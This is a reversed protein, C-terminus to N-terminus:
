PLVAATESRPTLPAGLPCAYSEGNILAYAQLSRSGSIGNAFGFFGAQGRAGEPLPSPFPIGFSDNRAVGVITGASSEAILVKKIPQNARIDWAWGRIRWGRQPQGAIPQVSSLAGACDNPPALRFVSNLSQGVAQYFSDSYVWAKDQRLFWLADSFDQPYKLAGPVYEAISVDEAQTVIALTANNMALRRRALNHQLAPVGAFSIFMPILFAAQLMVLAATDTSFNARLWDLVLLAFVLWFVMAITQYRSVGAAGAIGFRARGIATMAASGISFMGASVLFVTITRSGGGLLVRLYLAILIIIAIGALAKGFSLNFFSWSAAFYALLYDVVFRFSIMGPSDSLRYHWFYATWVLVGFAIFLLIKRTDIRLMIAAAVILPWALLGNALSLTSAVAALLVLTVVPATKSVSQLEERRLLLAAFGLSAATIALVFCVQFGWVFNEAQNPRFLCFAALGAATILWPGRYKGARRLAWVWIGLHLLQLAFISVLLFINKGGFLVLDALYFFKPVVLRHENHQQWFFNWGPAGRVKGLQDLFLWQDFYPMPSYARWVIWAMSAVTAAGVALVVYALITVAGAARPKNPVEAPREASSRAM